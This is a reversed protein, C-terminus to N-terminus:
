LPPAAEPKAPMLPLTGAIQLRVVIDLRNEIQALRLAKAATLTKAFKRLYDVRVDVLKKELTTYEKLMKAARDEPVNPYADAYELVLKLLGDGVKEQAARYERYLPWFAKGEEETLKMVEAVLVMRDVKLTERFLALEDAANPAAGCWAPAVIVCAAAVAAAAFLSVNLKM